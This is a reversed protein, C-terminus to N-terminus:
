NINKEQPTAIRVASSAEIPQLQVQSSADNDDGWLPFTDVNGCVIEQVDLKSMKSSNYRYRSGKTYESKRGLLPRMLPICALVIAVAPELGSLLTALVGSHTM